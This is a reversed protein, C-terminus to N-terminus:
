SRFCRLSAVVRFSTSSVTDLISPTEGCISSRHSRSNLAGGSAVQLTRTRRLPSGSVDRWAPWSAGPHSIVTSSAIMMPWPSVLTLSPTAEQRQWGGGTPLRDHRDHPHRHTPSLRQPSLLEHRPTTGACPNRGPRAHDAKTAHTPRVAQRPHDEAADTITGSATPETRERATCLAFDQRCITGPLVRTSRTPSRPPATM